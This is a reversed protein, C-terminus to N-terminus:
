CKSYIKIQDQASKVSTVRASSFVLEISVSLALLAIWPMNCHLRTALNSVKLTLWYYSLSEGTYPIVEFPASYCWRTALNAIMAFLAVQNGFKNDILHRWRTAVNEFLALLM